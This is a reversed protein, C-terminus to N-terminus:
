RALYVLKAVYATVLSRYLGMLSAYRLNELPRLHHREARLVYFFTHLGAPIVLLPSLRNAIRRRRSWRLDAPYNFRPVGNLESTYERAQVMATRRWKGFLTRLAFPDPPRHELQLPLEVVEGDVREPAHILGIMRTRGRRFMVLKYPGGDTIYRRGNWARWLFAYGDVNANKALRPLRERLEPSLFEDADVNLLWEGRAAEYAVPTNHEGHGGDEAVIVRCGRKEAIEITRDECPGSHVVVTEDVAGELSDLCREIIAEENRAVICASISGPGLESM